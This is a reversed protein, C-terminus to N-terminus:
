NNKKGKKAANEQDFKMVLNAKATISNPDIKDSDSYWKSADITKANNGKKSGATNTRANATINPVYDKQKTQKKAKKEQAKKILDEPDIKGITRNIVIQQICRIVSGVIWYIGIGMSFTICIFASFIPMINNMMNMQNMMAGQDGGANQQPMLKMNIWQTFWALVPILIGFIMAIVILPTANGSGISTFGTKIADWPSDKINIALFTNIKHSQAAVKTIDTTLDSFQSFSQLSEWQSPKLAYLLDIVHNLSFDDLSVRIKNDSAFQTLLEQSGQVAMMKTALGSFIDSVKTIYGPIYLIVQYLAFLIPMQFALPLCSGTMSVGYKSYVAQVEEQMKMQSAQDRKGQYKKQIKNIEPQVVSMMKSQKQQNVQIPTLIMYIVITFFVIALGINPIGIANLIEYIGNMLWGLVIAIYKIIFMTSKSLLLEM